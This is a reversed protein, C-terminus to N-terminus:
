HLGQLTVATNQCKHFCTDYAFDQAFIPKKLYLVIFELPEIFTQLGSLM